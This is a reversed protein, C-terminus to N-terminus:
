QQGHVALSRGITGDVVKGPQACQAHLGRGQIFNPGKGLFYAKANNPLAVFNTSPTDLRYGGKRSAVVEIIANVAGTKDSSATVKFTDGM